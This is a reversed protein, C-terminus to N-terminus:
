APTRGTTAAARRPRPAGRRRLSDATRGLDCGLVGGVILEDAFARRGRVFEVGGLNTMALVAVGRWRDHMAM